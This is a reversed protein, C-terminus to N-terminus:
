GGETRVVEIGPIWRGKIAALYVKGACYYGYLGSPNSDVVPHLEGCRGCAVRDRKPDVPEGLEESGVAYFRTM